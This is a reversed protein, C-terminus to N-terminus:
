FNGNNHLKLTKPKRVEGGKTGGRRLSLPVPPSTVFFSSAFRSGTFLSIFSFDAFRSNNGTFLSNILKLNFIQSSRVAFRSGRVLFQSRNVVEGPINILV